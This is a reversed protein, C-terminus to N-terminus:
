LQPQACFQLAFAGPLQPETGLVDALAAFLQPEAGFQRAFTSLVFAATAAFLFATPALLQPQRRRQKGPSQRQLEARRFASRQRRLWGM